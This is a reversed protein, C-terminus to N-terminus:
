VFEVQVTPTAAAYGPASAIFSITTARISPHNSAYATNFSVGTAHAALTTTFSATDNGFSYTWANPTASRFTADTPFRPCVVTVTLPADSPNSTSFRLHVFSPSASIVGLNVDLAATSAAALPTAVAVAIVPVSWAAATLVTRRGIGNTM